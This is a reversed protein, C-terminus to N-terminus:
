KSKLKTQERKLKKIENKDKLKHKQKIISASKEGVLTWWLGVLLGEFAFWFGVLLEVFALWFGM